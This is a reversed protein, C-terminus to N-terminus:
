GLTGGAIQSEPLSPSPLDPQAMNGNGSAQTTPQSAALLTREAINKGVQSAEEYMGLDRLFRVFIAEYPVLPALYPNSGAALVERRAQLRQQRTGELRSGIFEIDFDGLIGALPVPSPIEGCRRALDASDEVNRQHEELIHSALPPLWEREILQAQAEPRGRMQRYRGSYGTASERDPGDNLGQLGGLAGSGERMQQKMAGYFGATVNLPANYNLTAIGEMMNTLVPQNPRFGRLRALDVDADRHVLHPPHIMKAAADANLMLLADAFDQTFRIVEIPSIGPFRGQITCPSYQFFPIRGFHPRSKMLQGSLVEVCRRSVGDATKYPVEGYYAYGVMPILDPHSKQRVPRDLGERWGKDRREASDMESHNQIAREVDEEKWIGSSARARAESATISFRRACGQMDQIMTAGPDWFFDFIDICRFKYDDYAPVNGESFMSYEQGDYFGVSRTQDWWERYDWYGYLVGLGFIKGDKFWDHLSRYHGPLRFVRHELAQVTRAKDADEDGVPRTRIFDGDGFLLNMEDALLTEVIQHSEPDKLVSHGSSSTNLNPGAMLPYRPDQNGLNETWPRVLYNQLTTRWIWEYEQRAKSSDEVFSAVWRSEEEGSAFNERQVLM